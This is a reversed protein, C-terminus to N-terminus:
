ILASHPFDILVEERDREEKNLKSLAHTSYKM